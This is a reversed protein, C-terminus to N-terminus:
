CSPCRDAPHGHIELPTFDMMIMEDGTSSSPRSTLMKSQHNVQKEHENHFTTYKEQVDNGAETNCAQGPHPFLRSLRWLLDTAKAALRRQPLCLRERLEESDVGPSQFGKPILLFYGLPFPTLEVSLSLCLHFVCWFSFLCRYTHSPLRNEDDVGSFPASATFGM